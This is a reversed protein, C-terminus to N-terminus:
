DARRRCQRTAASRSQRGGLAARRASAGGRGEAREKALAPAGLRDPKLTHTTTGALTDDRRRRRRLRRLPVTCQRCPTARRPPGRTWLARTPRPRRGVVRRGPLARRHPGPVTDAAWPSSSGCVRYTPGSRVSIRNPRGPVASRWSTRSKRRSPTRTTTGASPRRSWASPCSGWGTRGAWRTGATRRTELRVTRPRDPRCTLRRCFISISISISICKLSLWIEYRYVSFGRTEAVNLDETFRRM